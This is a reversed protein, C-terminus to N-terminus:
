QGYFVPFDQEQEEAEGKRSSSEGGLCEGRIGGKIDQFLVNDGLVLLGKLFTELVPAV